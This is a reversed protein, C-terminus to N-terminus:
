KLEKIILNNCAQIYYLLNIVEPDTSIQHLEKLAENIGECQDAIKNDKTNM